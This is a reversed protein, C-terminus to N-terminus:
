NALLNYICVEGGRNLCVLFEGFTDIKIKKIGIICNNRYINFRKIIKKEELNILAFDKDTSIIGYTNDWILFDFIKSNLIIRKLLNKNVLDWILLSDIEENYTYLYKNNVLRGYKSNYIEKINAYCEGELLNNISIKKDCLEIIYWKNKYEWPIIYNTENEKTGYIDKIFPANKSNNQFDYLKSFDNIQNSSILIYYRYFINFLLLSNSIYNTDSDIKNEIIITENFNKHIEWIIIRLYYYLVGYFSGSSLLYEEKNNNNSFYKLNYIKRYGTIIRKILKKKKIECVKIHFTDNNDKHTEKACYILYQINDKLSTYVNFYNYYHDILFLDAM